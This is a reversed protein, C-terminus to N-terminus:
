AFIRHWSSQMAGFSDAGCAVLVIDDEYLVMAVSSGDEFAGNLCILQAGEEGRITKKHAKRFAEVQTSWISQLAEFDGETLIIEGKRVHLVSSFAAANVSLFQEVPPKPAIDLAVDWLEALGTASVGREGGQGFAEAPTSRVAVRGAGGCCELLLDHAAQLAEPEERSLVQGIIAADNQPSVSFIGRLRRGAAIISVTVPGCDFVLCRELVTNDIEGLIAAVPAPAGNESIARAGTKDVKVPMALLALRQTLGDSESM